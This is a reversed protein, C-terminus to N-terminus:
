TWDYNHHDTNLYWKKPYLISHLFFCNSLAFRLWRLQLGLGLTVHHLDAGFDLQNKSTVCLVGGFLNM